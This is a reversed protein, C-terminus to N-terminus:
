TQAAVPTTLWEGDFHDFQAGAKDYSKLIGKQTDTDYLVRRVCLLQKRYYSDCWFGAQINNRCKYM